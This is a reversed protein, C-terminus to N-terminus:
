EVFISTFSLSINQCTKHRNYNDFQMINSCIYSVRVFICWSSIVKVFIYWCFEAFIDIEIVIDIYLQICIGCIQTYVLM